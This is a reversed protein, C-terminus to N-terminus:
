DDLYDQFTKRNLNLLNRVQGLFRVDNASEKLIMQCLQVMEDSEGGSSPSLFFSKRLEKEIWDKIRSAVPSSVTLCIRLMGKKTLNIVNEKWFWDEGRDMDGENGFLLNRIILPSIGLYKSLLDINIPCLDLLESIYEKGRDEIYESM